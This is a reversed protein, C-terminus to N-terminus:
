AVQQQRTRLQAELQNLADAVKGQKLGLTVVRTVMYSQSPGFEEFLHLARRYHEGLESRFQASFWSQLVIKRPM